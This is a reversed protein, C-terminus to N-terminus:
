SVEAAVQETPPGVKERGIAFLGIAVAVRFEFIPGVISRRQHFKEVAAPLRPSVRDLRERLDVDFFGDGDAALRMRDREGDLARQGVRGIVDALDHQDGPENVGAIPLPQGDAGASALPMILLCPSGCGATARGPIRAARFLREINYNLAFPGCAIGLLNAFQDAVQFAGSELISATFAAM